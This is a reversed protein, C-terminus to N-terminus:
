WQGDRPRCGTEGSRNRVWQLWCNARVRPRTSSWGVARMQEPRRVASQWSQLQALSLTVLETQSVQVRGGLGGEAAWWGCRRWGDGAGASAVLRRV